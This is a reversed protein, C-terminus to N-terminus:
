CKLHPDMEKISARIFMVFYKSAYNRVLNDKNCNPDLDRNGYINEIYSRCIVSTTPTIFSWGINISIIKIQPDFRHIVYTSLNATKVILTIDQLLLHFSWSFNIVAIFYKNVSRFHDKIYTSLSATRFIKIYCKTFNLSSM